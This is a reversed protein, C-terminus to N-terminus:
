LSVYYTACHLSINKTETTHAGTRFNVTQLIAEARAQKMKKFRWVNSIEFDEWIEFNSM